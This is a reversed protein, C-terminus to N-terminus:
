QLLFIAKNEINDIPDSFCKEFDSDTTILLPFKSKAFLNAIMADPGRLGHKGMVKVMDSWSLPENFQDTLSGEMIEIFNLGMEQEVVIWENFLTQDLYTGCFTKWNLPSLPNELESRLKKLQAENVKYSYGESKAKTNSDRIYKLSNWLNKHITKPSIDDFVKIAGRSVLKRFILDIFEMRSVVNAFVGIKNEGLLDSLDNAVDYLRDDDFAQAYLFGTDALCGIEADVNQLFRNLESLSKLIKM